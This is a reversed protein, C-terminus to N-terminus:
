SCETLRTPSASGGPTSSIQDTFGQRGSAWSCGNLGEGVCPGGCWVAGMVQARWTPDTLGPDGMGLSPTAPAWGGGKGPLYLRGGQILHEVTPLVTDLAVVLGQQEHLPQLLDECVLRIHLVDGLTLSQASPCLPTPFPAALGGM